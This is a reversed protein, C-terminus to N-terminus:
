PLDDRHPVVRIRQVSSQTVLAGMRRVSDEEVGRPDVAPVCRHLDGPM